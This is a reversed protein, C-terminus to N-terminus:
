EGMKQFEDSMVVKEHLIDFDEIQYHGGWLCVYIWLGSFKNADRKQSWRKSETIVQTDTIKEVFGGVEWACSILKEWRLM